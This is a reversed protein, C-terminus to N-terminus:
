RKKYLEILPGIDSIINRPRYDFEASIRAISISPFHLDFPEPDLKLRCGTLRVIEDVITQNILKIGSAVNYLPHRGAQAIATLMGLVDDIAVYDKGVGLSTHLYIEGTDVAEQILSYLFNGSSFDNGIVNSLRAVRVKDNRMSFCLAEGMLKSLNYLDGPNSPNVQLVQGEDGSDCDSYVRTSSLYLFSDFVSHELVRALETVHAHVTDMPRKRFDSTLGICYIVHGLNQEKSFVFGRGPLFPETGRVRLYNVLHSGIFGNSGLITYRM